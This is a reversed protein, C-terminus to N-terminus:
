VLRKLKALLAHLKLAPVQRTIVGHLGQDVSALDLSQELVLLRKAQPIKNVTRVVFIRGDFGRTRSSYVVLKVCIKSVLLTGRTTNCNKHVPVCKPPFHLWRAVRALCPPVVLCPRGQLHPLGPLHPWGQLHPQGQWTRGCRDRAVNTGFAEKGAQM